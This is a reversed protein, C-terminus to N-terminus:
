TLDRRSSPQIETFHSSFKGYSRLSALSARNVSVFTRLMARESQSFHVQGLVRNGPFHSSDKKHGPHPSFLLHHPHSLFHVHQVHNPSLKYLDDKKYISRLNMLLEHPFCLPFDYAYRTKIGHYLVEM